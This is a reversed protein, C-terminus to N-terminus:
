AAIKKLRSILSSTPVYEQSRSRMDRLIVTDEMYEKQGLIITYPVNYSEAKRLQESLSNSTLFQYAPIDARKLDDLLHLSRVKPGFGLHVVFVSPTRASKVRPMRAGIKKDKLILTAGVAPVQRRMKTRVLEDYRGGRVTIPSPTGDEQIADIAFLTDSYCNHHGLLHNDIEYPTNSMELYEVISRFHKRSADTLYELSSPCSACLEDEKEIMDMLASIAHEKMLERSSPPMYEIKKRLYNTLERTYRTMSDRDGLTNIRIHGDAFGLERMLSRVTAILLIEATSGPVNIAHLTFAVEGTRPVRDVTHFLAPGELGHLRSQFYNNIGATLIGHMADNKRDQASIKKGTVSKCSSCSPDKKLIDLDQFGFHEATTCAAKVFDTASTQTHM